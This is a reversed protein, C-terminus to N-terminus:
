RKVAPGLVSYLSGGSQLEVKTVTQAAREFDNATQGAQLLESYRISVAGRPPLTALQRLYAGNVWVTPTTVANDSLNLVEIQKDRPHDVAAALVSATAAKPNAPYQATAAYGIRARADPDVHSVRTTNCGCAILSVVTLTVIARSM